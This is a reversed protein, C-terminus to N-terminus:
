RRETFSEDVLTEMLAAFERYGRHPTVELPRWGLLLCILLFV